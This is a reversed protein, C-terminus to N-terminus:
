SCRATPFFGTAWASWPMRCRPSGAKGVAIWVRLDKGTDVASLTYTSARSVVLGNREWRYTLLYPGVQTISGPTISATLVNASKTM